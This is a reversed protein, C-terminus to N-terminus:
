EDTKIIDRKRRIYEISFTDAEKMVGEADNIINHQNLGVDKDYNKDEGINM